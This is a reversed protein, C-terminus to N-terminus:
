SSADLTEILDAPLKWFWENGKKVSEIEAEAKAGELTRKTIRYQKADEIVETARAQHQPAASLYDILFEKAAERKTPPRGLKGGRSTKALMLMPDFGDEIEGTYTLLPQPREIGEVDAEDMEFEIPLPDDRLQSKVNCMIIRDKDEPDRGVIYIMRGAAPLGSSSGGIANLPHSNKAVNKIVHDVLIIACGTEEALKKLPRTAKRISDSQRKVGDSLHENVPDIILLKVKYKEIIRRIHGTDEPFLPHEDVEIRRKNAGIATLRPGLMTAHIEETQSLIVTGKKAVDTAIRIVLLSKGGGPRGAIVHVTGEFIRDQWLSKVNANKIKDARAV